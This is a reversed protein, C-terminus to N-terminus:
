GVDRTMKGKLLVDPQGQCETRCTMQRFKSTGKVLLEDNLLYYTVSKGLLIDAIHWSRTMLWLRKLFLLVYGEMVRPFGIGCRLLIRLSTPM